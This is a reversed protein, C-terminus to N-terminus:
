LIAYADKEQTIWNNQSSTFERVLSALWTNMQKETKAAGEFKHTTECKSVVITRMRWYVRVDRSERISIIIKGHEAFNEKIDQLAADSHIM